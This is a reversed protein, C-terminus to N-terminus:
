QACVTGHHAGFTAGHHGSRLGSERGEPHTRGSQRTPVCGRRCPSRVPVGLLVAADRLRAFAATLSVTNDFVLATNLPTLLLEAGQDLQLNRFALRDDFEQLREDVGGRRRGGSFSEIPRFLLTSSQNGDQIDKRWLASVLLRSYLQRLRVAISDGYYASAYQGQFVTRETARWDWYVAPGVGSTEGSSNRLYDISSFYVGLGIKLRGSLNLHAGLLGSLNDYQVDNEYEVHRLDMRASMGILDDAWGGSQVDAFVRTTDNRLGRDILQYEAGAEFDTASGLRGIAYPSVAFERFTLTNGTTPGRLGIGGAGGLSNEEVRFVRGVGRLRLGDGAIALDGRASFDADLQQDIFDSNGFQQARAAVSMDLTSGPRRVEVGLFPTLEVVSGSHRQAAPLRDINDSGRIGLSIGPVISLSRRGTETRGTGIRTLGPEADDTAQGPREGRRFGSPTQDNAPAASEDRSTPVPQAPTDRGTAEPPRSQALVPSQSGLQVCLVCGLVGLLARWETVMVM